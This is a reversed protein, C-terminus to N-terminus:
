EKGPQHEFKSIGIVAQIGEIEWDKELEFSGQQSFSSGSSITLSGARVEGM